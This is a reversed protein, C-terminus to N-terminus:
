NSIGIEFFLKIEDPVNGDTFIVQKLTSKDGRFLYGEIDGINLIEYLPSKNDDHSVQIPKCYLTIECNKRSSDTYKRSYEIIDGMDHKIIIKMDKM